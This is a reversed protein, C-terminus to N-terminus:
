ILEGGDLPILLIGLDCFAVEFVDNCIIGFRRIRAWRSFLQGFGDSIEGFM